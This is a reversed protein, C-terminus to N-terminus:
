AHPALSAVPVNAIPRYPAPIVVFLMAIPPVTSKILELVETAKEVALPLTLSDALLASMARLTVFGSGTFAVLTVIDAVPAVPRIVVNVVGTTTAPPPVDPVQVTANFL